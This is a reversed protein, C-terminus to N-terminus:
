GAAKQVWRGGDQAWYKAPIGLAKVARWDERAAAVAAADAGDFILCCREFGAMEGAQARGGEVLM